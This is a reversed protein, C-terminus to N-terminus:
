SSMRGATVTTTPLAVGMGKGVHAAIGSQQSADTFTGDGNNHYLTNPLGEYYKPHCYTRYADIKGCFPETAPNWKVYNVM